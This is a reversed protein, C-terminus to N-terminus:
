LQPVGQLVAPICIKMYDPLQNIKVNRIRVIASACCVLFRISYRIIIFLSVM